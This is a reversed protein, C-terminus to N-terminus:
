AAGGIAKALAAGERTIQYCRRHKGAVFAENALGRKALRSFVIYANSTNCVDSFDSFERTTTPTERMSMYLLAVMDTVLLGENACILLTKMTQENM